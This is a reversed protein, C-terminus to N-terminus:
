ARNTEILSMFAIQGDELLGRTKIAEDEILTEIALSSGALVEHRYDIQFTRLTRTDAPDLADIVLRAYMANNLHGNKDIDSYGPVLVVSNTPEETFNKIKKPKSEFARAEYFDKPGDYALLASAFSRKEADILVWESTAKVLLDGSESRITYDRLFSLKTQTHPWTRAIVREHYQPEKVIEIKVRTVVWFVGKPALDKDSIGMDEAQITAIDQFIDLIAQPKLRGYRDFDMWRLRYDRELGIPM